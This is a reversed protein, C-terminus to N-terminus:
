SAVDKNTLSWRSPPEYRREEVPAETVRGGEAIFKAIDAELAERQKRKDERTDAKRARAVAEILDDHSLM